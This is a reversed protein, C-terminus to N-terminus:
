EKIFTVTGDLTFSAIMTDGTKLGLTEVVVQPMNITHAGTGRQLKRKGLIIPTNSSM